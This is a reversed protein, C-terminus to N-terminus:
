TPSRRIRPILSGTPWGSAYYDFGMPLVYTAEVSHRNSAEYSFGAEISVGQIDTKLGLGVNWSYSKEAGYTYGATGSSGANHLEAVVRGTTEAALLPVDSCVVVFADNARRIDVILQQHGAHDFLHGTVLVNCVLSNVHDPDPADFWFSESWVTKFGAGGGNGLVKLSAGFDGSREVSYSGKATGNPVAAISFIPIQRPEDTFVDRVYDRNRFFDLFRQRVTRPDGKAVYDESRAEDWGVLYDEDDRNNYAQALGEIDRTRELDFNLTDGIELKKM